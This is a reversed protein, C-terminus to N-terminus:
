GTFDAMGTNSYTFYFDLPHVNKNPSAGLAVNTRYWFYAAQGAQIYGSPQGSQTLTVDATGYTGATGANDPAIQIHRPEWVLINATDANAADSRVVLEIGTLGGSEIRYRTTGDRKLSASTQTSDADVDRVTTITSGDVLMDIRNPSVGTNLNAFTLAYNDTQLTGAVEKEVAGTTYVKVSKFGGTGAKRVPKAKERNVVVKCNTLTTSGVNVAAIRVGVGAGAGANITGLYDGADIYGTWTNAFAANNDFLISVGPVLTTNATTENLLVNATRSVGAAYVYHNTSEFTVAATASTGAVVSSFTLSYRGGILEGSEDATASHIPTGVTNTYSLDLFNTLTADKPRILTAM